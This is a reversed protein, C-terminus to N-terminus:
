DIEKVFLQSIDGYITKFEGIVSFHYKEYLGKEESMLYIKEYGLEKAYEIACDFITESVRNGRKREDVFLFGLFPTYDYETPLEDKATLTCFGIINNNETAVFIREWEQFQNKEMMEALFAGAQWSCNRVYKIMSNWMNDKNSIATVNFM